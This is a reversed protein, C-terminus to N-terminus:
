GVLLVTEYPVDGRKGRIVIRQEQAALGGARYAEPISVLAIGNISEVTDDNQAGLRAATSGASVGTIRMAVQNGNDRIPTLDVGGEGRALNAIDALTVHHETRRVDDTIM